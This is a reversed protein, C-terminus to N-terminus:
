KTLAADIRVEFTRQWPLYVSLATARWGAPKFDQDLISVAEPWLMSRALSEGFQAAGDLAYIDDGLATLQAQLAPRVRLRYACDDVYRDFLFTAAADQNLTGFRRGVLTAVAQALVTGASNATTNWSAYGIPAGALQNDHLWGLAFQETDLDGSLFSLDVVGTPVGSRLASGIGNWFVVREAPDSAADVALEFDGSDATRIRMFSVLNAITQGISTFEYPDRKAAADASSYRLTVSPAWGVADEVARMVMIMGMEDAGSNLMVRRQVNLQTILARLRAQDPAQLGFDSGADDQTIALAAFDGDSAMRLLTEDVDLDRARSGMYDWFAEDPIHSRSIALAERQDHTPDAAGGLQAYNTLADLYPASQPTATPALRMVTGFAYIPVEPHRTRFDNLPRLRYLADGLSTASTRSAVLGGYALMDTSVVVATLNTADINQLWRGIAAPDGPRQFHGLADQPPLELRAGCIAAVQQPFYETAPRDDLPVFAIRIVNPASAAHADHPIVLALGLLAVIM